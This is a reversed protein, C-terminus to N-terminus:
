MMLPAFFRLPLRESRKARAASIGTTDAAAIEGANSSEGADLSGSDATAPTTQHEM